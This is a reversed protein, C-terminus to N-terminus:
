SEDQVRGDLLAPSDDGIELKGMNAIKMHSLGEKRLQAHVKIVNLEVQMSGNIEKSMAALAMGDSAKMSGTKVAYMAEALMRRIDGSTRPLENIM